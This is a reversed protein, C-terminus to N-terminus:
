QLREGPITLRFETGGDCTVSSQGDLQAVFAHILKTGLGGRGSCSTAAPMGRGDDRVVIEIAGMSRQVSITITGGRTGAFAHKFANSVVETVVLGVPVARTLELVLPEARLEISIGRSKAGYAEAIDGVLREFYDPLDVTSGADARYLSEHILAISQLRDQTDRLAAKFAPETFRQEQMRILSSTVQLNNKVRHHIEQLLIHKEKLAAELNTRAIAERRNARAGIWTLCGIAILVIGCIAATWSLHRYWPAFISVLPTSATVVVQWKDLRRFSVIRDVGDIVSVARYTGTAQDAMERFLVVDEITQGAQAASMGTRAVLTGSASWIALVTGRGVDSSAVLDDLFSPRMATQVVGAFRDQRDIIARSYTYVLEGTSRDIIAEGVYRDVGAARHAKFWARDSFGSDAPPVEGSSAVLGGGADVVLLHDTDATRRTVGALFEAAATTERLADVGGREGVYALVNAVVLDNIEFVRMAYEEVVRSMDRTAAEARTMTARHDLWLFLGGTILIALAFFGATAFGITRVNNLAGVRLWM